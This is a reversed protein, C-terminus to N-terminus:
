IYRGALDDEVSVPVVKRPQEVVIRRVSVNRAEIWGVQVVLISVQRLEVLSDGQAIFFIGARQNAVLESRAPDEAVVCAIMIRKKVVCRAATPEIHHMFFVITTDKVDAVLLALRRFFLLIAVVFGRAIVVVVISIVVRRLPARADQGCLVRRTSIRNLAALRTM